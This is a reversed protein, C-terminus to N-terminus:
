TGQLAKYFVMAFEQPTHLLIEPESIPGCWSARSAKMATSLDRLSNTQATM